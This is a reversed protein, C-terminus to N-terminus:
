PFLGMKFLKVSERRFRSVPLRDGNHMIIHGPHYEKILRFNVLYSQHIRFFQHNYCSLTKEVENLKKYFFYNQGNELLVKIKRKESTFYLIEELVINATMRNYKLTYTEYSLKHERAIKDMAEFVKEQSAPKDIYQCPYIRIIQKLYEEYQTVFVISVLSNKERIKAVAEMGNMGSLAIDMFVAAFDGTDEQAFVVEEGSTFRKIQVNLHQLGAWMEIYEALREVFVPVDDCM